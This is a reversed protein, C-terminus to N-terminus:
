VKWFWVEARERVTDGKPPDVGPGAGWIGGTLGFGVGDEEIVFEATILEDRAEQNVWFGDDTAISDLASANYLDGDFHELVIHSAWIKNWKAVLTPIALDIAGPLTTYVEDTLKHCEPLTSSELGVLCLLIEGYADNKYRGEWLASPPKPNDPRPIIQSSAKKYSAATAAKMIDNWDIRELGLVKDIIGFKVINMIRDGYIDDNSFVAVGLNDFPLRAIQTHFGPASGGHEILTHGRYAMIAQGGGYVVPSLTPHSMQGHVVTVGTAAKKIIEPPIVSEHTLPNRGNLLLTQLWTVADRASMIVGGAGSLLSGDNGDVSIWYPMSRLIGQGFLDETRNVQDRAIGEALNGSELAVNGSFTTSSLGLPDFIHEKVYQTYPIRSPLLVTPLYSLLTYMNNNYQWKDRFETSPRLFKFRPLLSHIDETWSYMLDDRPLGTRHSMLDVITSRASAVPDRLEWEPVIDAIRTDWSIRPVLSENSILLGTALVNFLKSNSGICFLTDESVRSGGLTAFGYGKTEVQWGGDDGGKVVAVGLGGPSKWDALVGEIFTDIDLDLLRNAPQVQFAAQKNAPLSYIVVIVLPTLALFFLIRSHM